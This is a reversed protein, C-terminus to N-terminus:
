FPLKQKTKLAKEMDATKKNNNNNKRQFGVKKFYDKDWLSMNKTAFEAKM